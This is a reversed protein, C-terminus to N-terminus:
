NINLIIKILDNKLAAPELLEMIKVRIKNFECSM